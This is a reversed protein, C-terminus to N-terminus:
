AVGIGVLEAVPGPATTTATLSSYNSWTGTTADYVEVFLQESGPSAGGVYQISSLNSANVVIWQGDPQITGNVTFHGNGTGGDWFAYDTISDGSLNSISTILSSAPISANEAVSVSQVNVVISQLPPATTTATLSSYNSWIGTTADYAVVYLPENGPQAGGVYKISSLNSALVYIWQGDLETTGNVTFHGNGTGGDWFGYETINDGNPNTVSTILSSAAITTNEAVSVNQVNVIVQPTLNAAGTPTWGLINMVELDTSTVVGVEGTPTAGYSDYGGSVQIAVQGANHGAANWDAVDGGQAPNSPDNTVPNNFETLLTTGNISFFALKGDAGGSYDRQGAASYRFLDIPGWYDSYIGSGLDLGLGGIRGMIESIEHELAGRADYEGSVAVGNYFYSDGSNLNVTNTNSSSTFSSLGLAEALASTLIFGTGNTPDVVSSLSNVAAVNDATTEHTTLLTLLQSYSVLTTDRAANSQAVFSGTAMGFTIDITVNNSFHEQYFNEAAIIASIYSSSVGSDYTNVFKLESGALTVVQTTTQVAQTASISEMSSNAVTFNAPVSYLGFATASFLSGVQSGSSVNPTVDTSAISINPPATSVVQGVNTSAPFSEINQGASVTSFLPHSISVSLEVHQNTSTLANESSRGNSNGSHLEWDSDSLAPLFDSPSGVYPLLDPLWIAISSNNAETAEDLNLQTDDFVALNCMELTNLSGVFDIWAANESQHSSASECLIVSFRIGTM